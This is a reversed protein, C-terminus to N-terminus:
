QQVRRHVASRGRVPHHSVYRRHVAANRKEVKKVEQHKRIGHFASGITHGAKAGAFAGAPGAVVAGTVAGGAAPIAESKLKTHHPADKSEVEAKARAHPTMKQATATATAALLAGLALVITTLATLCRGRM